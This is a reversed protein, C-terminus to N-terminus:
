HPLFLGFSLWLGVMFMILIFGLVYNM